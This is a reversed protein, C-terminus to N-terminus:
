TAPEYEATVAAIRRTVQDSDGIDVQRYGVRGAEASLGDVLAQKEASWAARGTLVVRGEGTQELIEKAFLLGLGGMGGTILYVGPDKFAVPPKEPGATVEQWRLVQRAGQEYKVLADLGRNKEEQLHRGLEEAPMDAPVRIL